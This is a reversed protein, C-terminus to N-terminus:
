YSAVPDDAFGFLYWPVALFFVTEVLCCSCGVLFICAAYCCSGLAELEDVM